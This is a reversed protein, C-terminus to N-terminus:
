IQVTEGTSYGRESLFHHEGRRAAELDELREASLMPEVTAQVDLDPHWADCILVVRRDSGDHWVEHEFSDDFILCEGERWERVEDGVRIRCGAPILLGLHIRLRLNSPGCHAALHTGSALSSFFHSGLIMTNLSPQSAIVGATEPCRACRAADKRCCAFLQFDGWAGESVVESRYETFPEGGGAPAPMTSDGVRDAPGSRGLLALLESRISEHAAELAQAAPVQAVSWFPNRRLSRELLEVPRQLPDLWVGRTAGLAHVAREGVSEGLLSLAHAWLSFAQREFRGGKAHLPTGPGGLAHACAGLALAAARLERERNRQEGVRLLAAGFHLLELRRAISSRVLTMSEEDLPTQGFTLSAETASVLRNATAQERGEDTALM